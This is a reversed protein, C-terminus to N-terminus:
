DDVNKGRRKLSQEMNKTREDIRAISEGHAILAKQVEGLVQIQMEGRIVAESAAHEAKLAADRAGAAAKEIESFKREGETLRATTHNHLDCYSTKRPTALAGGIASGIAVLAMVGITTPDPM